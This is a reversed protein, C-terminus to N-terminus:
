YDVNKQSKMEKEFKKFFQKKDPKEEADNKEFKIELNNKIGAKAVEIIVWCINTHGSSMQNTEDITKVDHLEVQTLETKSTEFNDNYSNLIAKTLRTKADLLAKEHAINADTSKGMGACRYYKTSNQYENRGFPANDLYSSTIKKSFSISILIFIFLVISKYSYNKIKRLLYM